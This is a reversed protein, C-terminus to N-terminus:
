QNYLRCRAVVANCCGKVWSEADGLEFIVPAVEIFLVMLSLSVGALDKMLIM